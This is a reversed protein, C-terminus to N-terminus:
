VGAKARRLQDLPTFLNTRPLYGALPLIKEHIADLIADVGPFYADAYNASPVIWERAGVVVPPGDLRDFVFESINRAVESLFSTRASADGVIVVRGTKDCSDLIKSYDLPVLSHINLIEAKLGYREALIDAAEVARYLAPGITLLTVDTGVRILDVDGIEIEYADEPVGGARFIEKQNYLQQSEFFVVPDTGNLAATLLGKAEWPTAPYVVKLGPIHTCLASWDQSMQANESAGVSVRLVVPMKLSGGSLAQWKALQNFLEDGARGLFDSYMIEPACRGGMMGYGVAAGVIASESVPTNFLRIYPVVEELGRYVEFAGGSDRVDEGFSLFSSDVKYKALMAEFVADRLTLDGRDMAAILKTRSNGAPDALFKARGEAMRAMKDNSFTEGELFVAVQEADMRASLNEDVAWRCVKAMRGASDRLIDEFEPDSAVGAAVLEARYIKLPDINEWADVEEASRYTGRDNTSHGSLRYTLVDLLIPGGGAALIERKRRYADIVALPDLGWVREAYLQKPEIGAGIRALMDYAMTEGRTQGGMGYGNDFVNFLVPLGGKRRDEWLTHFQDMAAFNLAEWVPGCGIAADGINCIVYGANENVRKYLAAGAAICASGGVIANNPYSGFPLFFAHAGGCLGRQFGTERGFVESLLGYLVFMKAMDKVNEAEYVTELARLIRGDLYGEMIETLAEDSLKHIASLAKALVEGHSRHSGFVADEPELLYAQGVAASEQGLAPYVSGPIQVPMDEFAGQTKVDLVATEFARLVTMDRYVRVLDADTFYERARAVSGDYANVPIRRFVIETKRELAKPDLLLSKTM